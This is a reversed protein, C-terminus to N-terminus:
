KPKSGGHLSYSRTAAPITTGWVGEHNPCFKIKVGKTLFKGRYTLAGNAGKPFYGQGMILSKHQFNNFTREAEKPRYFKYNFLTIQFKGKFKLKTKLSLLAKM